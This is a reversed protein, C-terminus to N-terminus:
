VLWEDDLTSSRMDLYRKYEREGIQQREFVEAGSKDALEDGYAADAHIQVMGEDHLIKIITHGLWRFTHITDYHPDFLFRDEGVTVPVSYEDRKIRDMVTEM